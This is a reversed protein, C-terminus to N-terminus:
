IHVALTGMPMVLQAKRCIKKLQENRDCNKWYNTGILRALNRWCTNSDKSNQLGKGNDIPLWLPAVLAVPCIDAAHLLSSSWCILVLM